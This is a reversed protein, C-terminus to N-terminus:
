CHKVFTNFHSHSFTHSFTFSHVTFNVKACVKAGYARLDCQMSPRTSYSMRPLFHDIGFSTVHIGIYFQIKFHTQKRANKSKLGRETKFKVNKTKKIKMIEACKWYIRNKRQLLNEDHLLENIVFLDWKKRWFEKIKSATLQWYWLFSLCDTVTPQVSFSPQRRKDDASAPAAYVLMPAWHVTGTSNSLMNVFAICIMM